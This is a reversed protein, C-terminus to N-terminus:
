ERSLESRRQYVLLRKPGLGLIKEVQTHDPLLLLPVSSLSCLLMLM